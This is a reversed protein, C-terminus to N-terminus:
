QHQAVNIKLIQNLGTLVLNPLAFIQKKMRKEFFALDGGTLIVTLQGFAKEYQAIRGLAEALIGEQVGSIISENTNRGIFGEMTEPNLLPLQATFNHLADYRMQLGPSISGGKYNGLSDIFDFKICTGADIVLANQRPFLYHAGAVAALRDKGLTEPTQYQNNFALECKHDLVVLFTEQELLTLLESNKEKVSSVITNKITYESLLQRIASINEGTVIQHHKLEDNEFLALKTRSNGIDVCLNM